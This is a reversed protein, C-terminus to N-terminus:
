LHARPAVVSSPFGPVMSALNAQMLSQHQSLSQKIRVAYKMRSLVITGISPPTSQFGLVISFTAGRPVPRLLNGMATKPMSFLGRRMGLIFMGRVLLPTMGIIHMSYGYDVDTPPSDQRANSSSKPRLTQGGVIIGSVSVAVVLSFLLVRLRDKWGWGKDVISEVFLDRIGARRKFLIALSRSSRTSAPNASERNTLLSSATNAEQGHFDQPPKHWCQFCWLALNGLIKGIYKISLPIWIGASALIVTGWPQPITVFTEGTDYDKWNGIIAHSAGAEM